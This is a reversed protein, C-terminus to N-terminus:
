FWPESTPLLELHHNFNTSFSNWILMLGVILWGSRLFTLHIEQFVCKLGFGSDFYVTKFSIWACILSIWLRNPQDHSRTHRVEEPLQNNSFFSWGFLAQQWIWISMIFLHGKQYGGCHFIAFVIFFWMKDREYGYFGRIDLQSLDDKVLHVDLETASEGVDSLRQSAQESEWQVCILSTLLFEKHHSSFSASDCHWLTVRLTRRVSVIPM